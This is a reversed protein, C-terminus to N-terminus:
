LECAHNIQRSDTLAVGSYLSHSATIRQNVPLWQWCWTRSCCLLNTQVRECPLPVSRRWVSKIIYLRRIKDSTCCPQMKSFIHRYSTM